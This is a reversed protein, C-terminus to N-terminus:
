SWLITGVSLISEKCTVFCFFRNSYREKAEEFSCYIYLVYLEEPATDFFISLHM